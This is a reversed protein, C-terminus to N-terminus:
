SGIEVMFKGGKKIFGEIYDGHYQPEVINAILPKVKEIDFKGDKVEIFTSMTGFFVEHMGDRFFKVRNFPSANIDQNIYFAVDNEQWEDYEGDLDKFMSWVMQKAM